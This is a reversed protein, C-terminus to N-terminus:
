IEKNLIEIVSEIDDRIRDRLDGPTKFREIDRIKKVPIIDVVEGYINTNFDMLYAEVMGGEVGFTPNPGIKIASRVKGFEGEVFGAFVGELYILEEDMDINITPIGLINKGRGKGAVVTGSIKYPRGLMENASRFDGRSIAERIDSSGFPAGNFEAPEALVFELGYRDSSESLEEFGVSGGFGIRHGGGMVLFRGKLKDIIYVRIFEAPSHKSIEGTFPFVLIEDVGLEEILRIREEPPVILKVDPKGKIVLSPHPQFTVITSTLENEEATKIVTKIVSKHGLHVGDFTGLAVVREKSRDIDDITRYIKSM